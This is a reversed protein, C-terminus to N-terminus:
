PELLKFMPLRAGFWSLLPQDTHAIRFQGGIWTDHLCSHWRLGTQIQEHWHTVQICTQTTMM